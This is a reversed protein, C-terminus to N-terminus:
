SEKVSQNTRAAIGTLRLKAAELEAQRALLHLHNSVLDASKGLVNLQGLYASRQASAQAADAEALRLHYQRDRLAASAALYAESKSMALSIAAKRKNDNTLGEATALVDDTIAAEITGLQDKTEDVQLKLDAIRADISATEPLGQAAHAIENLIRNSEQHLSYLDPM